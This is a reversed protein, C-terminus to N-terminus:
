RLLVYTIQKQILPKNAYKVLGVSTRSHDLGLLAWMMVSVSWKNLIWRLIIRGDVSLVQSHERGNLTELYFKTYM